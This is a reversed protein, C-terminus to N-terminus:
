VLALSSAQASPRGPTRATFKANPVPSHLRVFYPFVLKAVLAVSYTTPNAVGASARRVVATVQSHGLKTGSLLNVLAEYVLDGAGSDLALPESSQCVLAYHSTKARQGEGTGRSVVRSGEPIKWEDGNLTTAGTWTILSPPSVDISKPKSRMPSFAVYPSSTSRVLERVAPAISNGIGWLFVGGNAIREREKRAVIDEIAEGSETGFRTWCFVEPLQVSTAMANNIHM